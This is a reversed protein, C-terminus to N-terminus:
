RDRCSKPTIGLSRMKWVLTTRKLGLREAAGRPGGVIGNTEQLTRVILDATIERQVKAGSIKGPGQPVTVSYELYEQLDKLPVNLVPGKSLIVAREILNQLERVNGPWNWRLLANMSESPISDITHKTRLAFKRTFHKVLQPIDEVRERLPPITVPFVNLRYYLDNRFQREEVLQRLNRNTAAILRVDVKITRTSGLRSFEGDQLARLLKPQIELPIDGIEDLFLTGNHALEMLGMKSGTAGTFAGNEYGFLESELLGTPLAACNLKVFTRNKRPSLNHVARAILEKGTGTEGLILVTADSESVVQVQELVSKLASSEGVIEEFNCTAKIEGELYVKERSLKDKLESIEEFALANEVAVAIPKAIETLLEVCSDTFRGCVRSGVNLTGLARGHIILPISCFEVLGEELFKAVQKFRRARKVLETSTTVLPKKMRFAMVGTTEDLQHVGGELSPADKCREFSVAARRMADHHADYLLLDAYEAGCLRRISKSVALLLLHLNLESIVAEAVERASLLLDHEHLFASQQLVGDQKEMAREVVFAIHICVTRLIHADV